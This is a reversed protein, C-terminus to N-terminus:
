QDDVCIVNDKCLELIFSYNCIPIFLLINCCSFLFIALKCIRFLFSCTKKREEKEKRRRPVQLWFIFLLIALITIVLHSDLFVIGTYIIMLSNSSIVLSGLPLIKLCGLHALWGCCSVWWICSGLHWAGLYCLGTYFCWLLHFQEALFVTSWSCCWWVLVDGCWSCWWLWSWMM